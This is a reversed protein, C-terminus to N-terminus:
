HIRYERYHTDIQLLVNTWNALISVYVYNVMRKVFV